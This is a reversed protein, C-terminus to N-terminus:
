PKRWHVSHIQWMTKPLTFRFIFLSHLQFKMMFLALVVSTKKKESECLTTTKEIFNTYLRVDYKIIQDLLSFIFFLIIFCIASQMLESNEVVTGFEKTRGGKNLNNEENM